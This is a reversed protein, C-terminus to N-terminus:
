GDDDEVGALEATEDVLDVQQEVRNFVVTVQEPKEVMECLARYARGVAILAMNPPIRGLDLTVNDIRKTLDIHIFISARDGNLWPHTTDEAHESM